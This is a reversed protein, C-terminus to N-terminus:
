GDMIGGAALVPRSTRRVLQPVLAMTGIMADEVRGLFTGRHGGAEAGQACIADVGLADLADAEDVNTATGVIAIGRARVAAVHDRTLIGFTFSFVAPRARLVAELQADFAPPPPGIAIADALGLERRFSRLVDIVRAEAAPDDPEDGRVFLNLAFPRSTPARIDAAIAEIQAGNAYAGGVSGLAGANSVAAALAPTDPGGAMPAQVIPLMAGFLMAAFTDGSRAPLLVTWGASPQPKIM